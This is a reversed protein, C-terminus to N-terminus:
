YKMNIDSVSACTAQKGAKGKEVVGAFMSAWLSVNNLATLIRTTYSLDMGLSLDFYRM